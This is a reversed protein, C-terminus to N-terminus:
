DILTKIGEIVQDISIGDEICCVKKDASCNKNCYEEPVELNISRKNLIGWYKVSRMPRRCNLGICKRDLADAIHLPGTSNSIFLDMVSIIKIFQRLDGWIGSINIVRDDNLSKVNKLFIDSMEIATLVVKMNPIQLKLMEKVLLLYKDESWNPSSGLSGTHLIIKYDTDEIGYKNLFELAEKKEDDRVFIELEQNVTKVGIKRATDLCYETEHKLPTYNHRDVSRMGSIVEYLKHGEGVRTKIGAFMMQYAARETPMALLGDTFNFARLQKVVKWFTKNSLDDIIIEDVYPNNTLIKATNPNTLTALFSDPFKKKIERIMPTIMVVDGVRDTRVILIRKTLIRQTLIFSFIFLFM